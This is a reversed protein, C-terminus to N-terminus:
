GYYRGTEPSKMIKPVRDSDQTQKGTAYSGFLFIREPTLEALIADRIQEFDQNSYM